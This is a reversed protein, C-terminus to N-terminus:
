VYVLYRLLGHHRVRTIRLRMSEGQFVYRTFGRTEPSFVNLGQIVVFSRHKIWEKVM